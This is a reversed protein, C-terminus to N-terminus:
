EDEDEDLMMEDYVAGLIGRVELAEEFVQKSHGLNLWFDWNTFKEKRELKLEKVIKGKVEKEARSLKGWSGLAPCTEHGRHFVEGCKCISGESLFSLRYKLLIEQEKPNSGRLCIDALRLGPGGRTYMPIIKTLHKERAQTEIVKVRKKLLFRDLAVQATPELKVTDKFIEFDRDTTLETMWAYLKGPRREALLQRLPNEDPLQELILQYKTFLHQFRDKLTTIGCLNATVYHRGNCGSIWNMLEKWQAVATEFEPMHSKAWAWVLPGGYEFMPAIHIKYVMLRIKPGWTDSRVGLFGTLGVAASIRQQLLMGFDIGTPRVPFGLYTVCDKREVERGYISLVPIEFRSIVACKEPSLMIANKYTWAEIVQLVKPIDVKSNCILIGDDAYFYCLPM